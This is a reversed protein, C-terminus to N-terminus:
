WPTAPSDYVNARWRRLTDTDAAQHNELEHYLARQGLRDRCDRGTRLHRGKALQNSRARRPQVGPTNSVRHSYEVHTNGDRLSQNGAAGVRAPRVRSLGRRACRGWVVPGHVLQDNLIVWGSQNAILLPLCRYAFQQPSETMWDRRHPAPMLQLGCDAITYATMRKVPRASAELTM